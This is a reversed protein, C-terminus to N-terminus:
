FKFQMDAQVRVRYANPVSNEFAPLSDDIPRSWFTTLSAEVGPLLERSAYVALGKRNTTGDFLDSDIFQSFFANAEIQFWGAGIKVWEKSDGIEAGVGWALNEKGAQPFLSSSEASLNGAINGYITIPWDELCDFQSYFGGEIVNVSDDGTMGDIINGGGGNGDVGTQIESMSVNGFRFYSVRSGFRIDDTVKIHGGIQAAFM